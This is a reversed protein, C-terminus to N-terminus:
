KRKRSVTVATLALASMGVVAVIGGAGTSPNKADPTKTDDDEDEEEGDTKDDDTPDETQDEGPAFFEITISDIKLVDSNDEAKPWWQQVELGPNWDEEDLMEENINDQPYSVAIEHTGAEAFEYDNTIWDEGGTFGVTGNVYDNNTLQVTVKKILFVEDIEMYDRFSLAYNGDAFNHDINDIVIPDRAGVEEEGEGPEEGEPEEGEPEEAPEEAEVEALVEGDADYFTISKITIDTDGHWQQITVNAWEVGEEFIPAENDFSLMNDTIENEKDMGETGFEHATWGLNNAQFILALIAEDTVPELEVDVKTAKTLDEGLAEIPNVVYNAYPKGDQDVGVDNANTIAASATIAMASLSMACAVIGALLRKIKM